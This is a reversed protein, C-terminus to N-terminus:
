IGESNFSLEINGDKDIAILGRRRGFKIAQKIGRQMGRKFFCEQIRCPM